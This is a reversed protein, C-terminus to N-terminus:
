SVLKAVLLNPDTGTFYAGNMVINEKLNSRDIARDQLFAGGRRKGSEPWRDIARIPWSSGAPSSLSLIHGTRAM